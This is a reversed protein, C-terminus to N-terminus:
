ISYVWAGAFKWWMRDSDSLVRAFVIWRHRSSSYRLLGQRKRSCNSCKSRFLHLSFCPALAFLLSHLTSPPPHLIFSLLPDWMSWSESYGAGFNPENRRLQEQEAPVQSCWADCAVYRRSACWVILQESNHKKFISKEQMLKIVTGPHGRLRPAFGAGLECSFQIGHTGPSLPADLATPTDSKSQPTVHSICSYLFMLLSRPPM